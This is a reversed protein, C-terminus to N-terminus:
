IILIGMKLAFIRLLLTESNGEHDSHITSIFYGVEREVKRFFVGFKYLYCNKHPLFIIWTFRSLDDVITFAYRKGGISATRAPRFLGM